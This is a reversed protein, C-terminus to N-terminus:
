ATKARGMSLTKLASSIDPTSVVDFPVEDIRFRLKLLPMAFSTLYISFRGM